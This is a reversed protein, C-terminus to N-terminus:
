PSAKDAGEGPENRELVLTILQEIDLLVSPPTSLVGSKWYRVSELIAHLAAELEHNRTAAHSMLRVLECSACRELGIVVPAAHCTPCQVESM